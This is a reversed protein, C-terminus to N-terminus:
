RYEIVVWKDDVAVFTLSCDHMEDFMQRANHMGGYMEVM